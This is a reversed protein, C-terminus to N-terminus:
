HKVKANTPLSNHKLGESKVFDIAAYTLTVEPGNQGDKVTRPSRNGEELVLSAYHLQGDASSVSAPRVRDSNVSEPRSGVITSSSSCLESSTSSPRSLSNRGSELRLVEYPPDTVVRSDEVKEADDKNENIPRFSSDSLQMMAMRMSPSSVRVGVGPKMVAYDDEENSKPNFNVYDSKNEFDMPTYDGETKKQQPPKVPSCPSNLSFPFITSSSSPTTVSSSSSDKSDRRRSQRPLSAYPTNENLPLHMPPTGTSYKRGLIAYRPSSSGAGIIKQNGSPNQIAIPQSRAKDKKRTGRDRKKGMSMNAYDENVIQASDLSSQRQHGRGLSMEVYGDPTAPETKPSGFQADMYSGSLPSAKAPSLQYTSSPRKFSMALYDNNNNNNNNKRPDMEMYDNSIDSLVDSQPSIYSPKAPSSGQSMDVYPSTEPKRGPKMEVYRQNNRPGPTMDM